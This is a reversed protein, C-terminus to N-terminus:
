VNESLEAFVKARLPRRALAVWGLYRAHMAPLDVSVGLAVSDTIADTMAAALYVSLSLPQGSFEGLLALQAPSCPWPAACARCLGVPRMPLHPRDPVAM